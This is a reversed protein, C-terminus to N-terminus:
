VRFLKGGHLLKNNNKLLSNSSKHIFPQNSFMNKKNNFQNKEKLVEWSVQNTINPTDLPNHNFNIDNQRKKRMIELAEKIQKEKEEGMYRELERQNASKKREEVMNQLRDQEMMRKLLEKREKQKKGLNSLVEKFGM